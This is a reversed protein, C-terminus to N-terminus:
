MISLSSCQPLDQCVAAASCCSGCNLLDNSTGSFGETSLMKRSLLYQSNRCLVGWHRCKGGDANLTVCDEWQSLHPTFYGMGFIHEYLILLAATFIPTTQMKQSTLWFCNSKLLTKCFMEGVETNWTIICLSKCM